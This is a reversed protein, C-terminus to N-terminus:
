WVWTASLSPSSTLCSNVSSSLTTMWCTRCLLAFSFNGLSLAIKSHFTDNLSSFFRVSLSILLTHSSSFRLRVDSRRNKGRIPRM